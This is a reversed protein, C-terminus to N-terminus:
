VVSKRDRHVGCDEAYKAIETDNTILIYEM